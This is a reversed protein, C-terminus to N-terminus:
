GDSAVSIRFSGSRRSLREQEARSMNSVEQLWQNLNAIQRHYKAEARLRERKAEREMARLKAEMRGKETAYKSAM